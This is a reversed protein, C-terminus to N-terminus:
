LHNIYAYCILPRFPQHLKYVFHHGILVLKVSLDSHILIIKSRKCCM